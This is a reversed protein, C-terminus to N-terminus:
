KSTLTGLKAEQGATANCSMGKSMDVGREGLLTEIRLARRRNSDLRLNVDHWIDEM